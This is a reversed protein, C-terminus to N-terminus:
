AAGTIDLFRSAIERAILPANGGSRNNIVVNIGANNEFADKMIDVTENIMESSLMGHVLRDFPHAKKYADEYRMGRPTMLRMVSSGSRNFLVDGMLRYQSKLSPLWTWHSLVYGIGHDKLTKVVPASLLAQTRIEVHYRNDQPIKEFFRDLERAFAEPLPRLSARQYEQEFVFAEIRRDFLLCAPEYFQRIFMESDLYHENEVQGKGRRFSRAFVAQPVKLIVRNGERMHGAYSNLVHWTRTPNGDMDLLPSYFTFDLELVKFHEFYEEVSEVPLVKETYYASGFKKKRSSIRGEYRGESYIQGLWGAYRDSATGISILPHLGRFFFSDIGSGGEMQM